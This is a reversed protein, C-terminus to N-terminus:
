KDDKVSDSLKKDDEDMGDFFGKVAALGLAQFFAEIKEWKVPGIKTGRMFRSFRRGRSRTWAYVKKENTFKGILGLIIAIGIGMAWPSLMIQKVM